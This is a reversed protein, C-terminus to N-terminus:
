RRHIRKREIPIGNEMDTLDVQAEYTLVDSIKPKTCPHKPTFVTCCDEYPLISTEFTGIKRSIVVIEEKDMGICPRFVPIDGAAMDTVALADVTQSAVQGLSEGTILCRSNNKRALSAAIRMMSRRMLLTIYNDPCKQRLKEQIGTFSVIDLSFDGAYRAIKQALAITKDLAQESTYPYSHFHVAHLKMGRKAMQWGAVPSDIGGSLLLTGMGSTGVPLGGAGNQRNAHLYIGNERVEAVVTCEPTHVDVHLHPFANHLCSGLAASIQPSTLPFHKDARKSEVKFSRVHSLTQRLIDPASSLLAAMDKELVDASSFAVVGFLTSVTDMVADIDCDPPPTVYICSQSSRVGFPGGLSSLRKKAESILRQEFSSRNLGKLVLEGPKLLIVKM